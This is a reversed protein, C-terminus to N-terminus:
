DYSSTLRINCKITNASMTSMHISTNRHLMYYTHVYMFSLSFPYTHTYKSRRQTSSYVTFLYM